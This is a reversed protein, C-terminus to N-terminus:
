LLGVRTTAKRGDGNTLVVVVVAPVAPAAPADLGAITHNSKTGEISVLKAEVVVGVVAVDLRVWSM